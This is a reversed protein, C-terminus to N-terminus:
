EHEDKRELLEETVILRPGASVVRSSMSRTASTASRRHAVVLASAWGLGIGAIAVAVLVPWQTSGARNALRRETREPNDTVTRPVRPPSGAAGSSPSTLTTTGGSASEDGLFGLIAKSSLAFSIGETDREKSVVLGVVVGEANVLPGGSNGPNVAADTQILDGQFSSVIGRTVSSSGLPNGFAYVETLLDPITASLGLAPVGAGDDVSLEAVDLQQDRKVVAAPLREGDIVVSVRASGEVVHNATLIRREGVIFGTGTSDITEIRVVSDAVTSIPSPPGPQTAGAAVLGAVLSLALPALFSM